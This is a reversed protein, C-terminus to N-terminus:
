KKGGDKGKHGKHHLEHIQGEHEVVKVHDGKKFVDLKIVHGHADVIKVSEALKYHQHKKKEHFEV